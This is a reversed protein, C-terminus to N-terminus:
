YGYQLDKDVCILRAIGRRTPAYYPSFDGRQEILMIELLQFDVDVIGFVIVLRCQKWDV